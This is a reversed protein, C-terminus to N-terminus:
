MATFSLRARSHSSIQCSQGLSEWTSINQNMGCVMRLGSICAEEGQAWRKGKAVCACSPDGPTVDPVPEAGDLRSVCIFVLVTALLAIQKPM